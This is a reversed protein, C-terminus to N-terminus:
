QLTKIPATLPKVDEVIYVGGPVSLNIKLLVTYKRMENPIFGDCNTLAVIANSQFDNLNKVGLVQANCGTESDSTNTETAYAHNAGKAAAGQLTKDMQPIEFAHALNFMLVVTSITFIRKM